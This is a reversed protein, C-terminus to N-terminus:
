AANDKRPVNTLSCADTIGLGAFTSAMESVTLPAGNLLTENGDFNVGMDTLLSKPSTNENDVSKNVIGASTSVRVQIIM